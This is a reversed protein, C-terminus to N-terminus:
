QAAPPPANLARARELHQRITAAVTSAHQRLTENDGGQAYSEAMALAAEHAAIQQRLYEQDFAPGTAGRLAEIEAQQAPDLAPTVALPPQMQGAAATLQETSRRHDDRIMVALVRIEPNTAKQEALGASDIEYLDSGAAKTVYEAATPVAAAVTNGAAANPDAENGPSLNTTNTSMDGCAVTLLAAATGIMLRM